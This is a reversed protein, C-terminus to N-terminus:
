RAKRLDVIESGNERGVVEGESNVLYGDINQLDESEVDRFTIQRADLAGYESAYCEGTSLDQGAAFRTSISIQPPLKLAVTGDVAMADRQENQTCTLTVVLKRVPKYPVNPDQMNELLKQWEEAVREGLHGQAISGIDFKEQEM